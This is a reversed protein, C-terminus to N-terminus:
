LDNTKNCMHIHQNYLLQQTNKQIHQRHPLQAHRSNEIETGIPYLVPPYDNTLHSKPTHSYHHTLEAPPRARAPIAVSADGSGLFILAV